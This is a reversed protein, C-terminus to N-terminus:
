IHILSLRFGRRKVKANGAVDRSWIVYESKLDYLLPEERGETVEIRLCVPMKQLGVECEQCGSVRRAEEGPLVVKKLRGGTNKFLKQERDVNDTFRIPMDLVLPLLGMVGGTRQDHQALWSERKQQLEEHTMQEEETTLPWDQAVCWYVQRSSSRAYQVAHGILQRKYM